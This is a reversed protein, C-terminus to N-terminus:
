KKFIKSMIGNGLRNLKEKREQCGCDKPALKNLGVSKIGKELADGLKM